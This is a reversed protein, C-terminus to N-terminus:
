VNIIYLYHISNILFFLGYCVLMLQFKIYIFLHYVATKNKTEIDNKYKQKSFDSHTKM